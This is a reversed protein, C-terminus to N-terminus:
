SPRELAARDWRALGAAAEYTSQLFEGLFADPDPAERVAAYPLIFERMQPHYYAAAPRVQAQPFGTPEPYSYAYFAAESLAGGGPWWGASICEHSYAERTIWDPLNPIGGPHPPAVRGSFRTCSLDFGGWWFHVPSCKGLFRGRFARLVRDAQVLARWCRQAADPDYSAHTRDDHFPVVTEM